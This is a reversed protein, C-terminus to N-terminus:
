VRAAPESIKRFAFYRADSPVALTAPVLLCTAAFLVAAQVPGVDSDYRIRQYLGNVTISPLDRALVLEFGHRTILDPLTQRSFYSLHPSPFGKQWMRSLPGDIGLRGLVRAIRFFIGNSMPLSIILLGREALHEHCARVIADLTPLHEFVDNFTIADYTAGEPVADPFFGQAFDINAARLRLAMDEDPEVGHCVYGRAQASQIFWGHACGVDLISAGPPILPACDDLLQRFGVDRLHRLAMARTDENIVHVRNIEVPLDSAFFGCAPCRYTKGLLDPRMGTECVQCLMM